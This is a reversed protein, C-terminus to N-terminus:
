ETSVSEEVTYISPLMEYHKVRYISFEEVPYMPCM